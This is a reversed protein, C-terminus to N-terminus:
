DMFPGWSPQRVDSGPISLVQKSNGDVSVAALVRKGGVKTSYLVYKGNAAFSPSEDSTGDTLAQSDGTALNLIYLRYAGGVNAIYALYKGDPSIRPSTVFGQKFSVRKAGEAQEGESSMRYIQPNGGRDSTFYIFRGDPSYQPETDITNGRTLRHLGTGDANIGYIQTNGDKSLSIALKKGDPSWAPASNNGKQNSLSIRRGTALEHVYIVPKRDEFSVYAVKKGDPSWSPSIIPDGSAMANRINQGDADSIVLRYRKGDKIVYSLRTSFIGREGLLKMVIDDAIKHAVSRLNDASSTLNLGGLSLSKRIDFLKYHIEYQDGKQVVSGVVLADAGRAAWSKYNPTGDDSEAANGNETNKFYGSRALDQRIIDTINTPLKNEDKFRMVAIPYLSQGVGTIEISMQAFSSVSFTGLFIVGLTLIIKQLTRAILNMM